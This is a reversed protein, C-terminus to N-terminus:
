NKEPGPDQVRFFIVECILTLPGAAQEACRRFCFLLVPPWSRVGGFFLFFCTLLEMPLRFYSLSFSAFLFRGV